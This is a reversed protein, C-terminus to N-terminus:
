RVLGDCNALLAYATCAYYQKGSIANSCAAHKRLTHPDFNCWQQIDTAPHNEVTGRIDVRAHERAAPLQWRRVLLTGRLPLQALGCFLALKAFRALDEAGAVRVM